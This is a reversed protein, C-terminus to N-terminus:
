VYIVIKYKRLLPLPAPLSSYNAIMSVTGLIFACEIHNIKVQLPYFLYM